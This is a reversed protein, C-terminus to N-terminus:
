FRETHMGCNQCSYALTTCKLVSSMITVSNHRITVCIDLTHRINITVSNHM